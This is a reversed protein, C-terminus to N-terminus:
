GKLFDLTLRAFDDAADWPVLHKCGDIIHLDIGPQREKLLMAREYANARDERGFILRIPVPTDAMREWLAPGKKGGGPAVRGREVFAEFNRGLSRSHRLAM